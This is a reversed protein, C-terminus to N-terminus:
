SSLMCSPAMSFRLAPLVVIQSTKKEGCQSWSTSAIEARASSSDPIRLTNKRQAFSTANKSPKTSDRSAIRWRESLRM